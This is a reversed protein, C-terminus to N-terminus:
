RQETQYGLSLLNNRAELLTTIKLETEARLKTIAENIAAVAAQTQEQTPLLQVTIEALGVKVYSPPAWSDGNHFFNLLGSRREPDDVFSPFESTQVWAQLAVNISEQM